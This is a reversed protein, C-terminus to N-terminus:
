RKVVESDSIDIVGNRMVSNFFIPKINEKDSYDMDYLMMGFHLEDMDKYCSEKQELENYMEFKLPFEKCGFYPTQYCKGKKIRKGVIAAIKDENHTQQENTVIFHAEIVYEVDTLLVANRQMVQKSNVNLYVSKDSGNMSSLMQSKSIKDKVENRKVQRFKIPNIVHIKDIVWKMGPHWYISEMIGRAASPTMVDYSYREAKFEPRTFLADEGWVRIKIGMNVDGEQYVNM